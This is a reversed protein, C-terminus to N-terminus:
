TRRQASPPIGTPADITRVAHKPTSMPWSMLLAATQQIGGVVCPRNVLSERQVWALGTGSLRIAGPVPYGRTVAEFSVM